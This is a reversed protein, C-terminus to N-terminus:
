VAEQKLYEIAQQLRTISDRFLGLGGNCSRCLLGRVRGTIHCHDVDLCRKDPPDGCSACVGGQKTLMRDYNEQTIGYYHKLQAGRRERRNKDPHKKRYRKVAARRRQAFEEPDKAKLRAHAALQQQRFREPHKERFTKNYGAQRIRLEDPTM